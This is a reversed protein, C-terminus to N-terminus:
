GRLSARPTMGCRRIVLCTYASVIVYRDCPARELTRQLESFMWLAMLEGFCSARRQWALLNLQVGTDGGNDDDRAGWTTRPPRTESQRHRHQHPVNSVCGVFTYRDNPGRVLM